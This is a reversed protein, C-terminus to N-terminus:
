PSPPQVLKFRSKSTIGWRLNAIVVVRDPEGQEAYRKGFGTSLWYDPAIQFEVGSSWQVNSRSVGPVTNLRKTGVVEVFLNRSAAGRIM